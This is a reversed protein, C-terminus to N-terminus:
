HWKNHMTLSYTVTHTCTRTQTDLTQMRTNNYGKNVVEKGNGIEIFNLPMIEAFCEVLMYCLRMWACLYTYIIAAYAVVCMIWWVFMWMDFCVCPFVSLFLLFFFFSRVCGIQSNWAYVFRVARLKQLNIWITDFCYTNVRTQFLLFVSRFRFLPLLLSFFGGGGTWISFHSGNSSVRNHAKLANRNAYHVCTFWITHWSYRVIISVTCM